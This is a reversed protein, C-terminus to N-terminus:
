RNQDRLRKRERRYRKRAESGSEGILRTSVDVGGMMIVGRIRLLPKSLDPETPARHLDQFGGMIAVGSIDVALDPPVIIEVGGMMGVIKIDIVGAPLSAERFDLNVGGMMTFITMSRPVLWSGRRDHGSMI